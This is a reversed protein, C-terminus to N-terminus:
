SHITVGLAKFEPKIRVAWIVGLLLLGIGLFTLMSPLQARLIYTYCLAALTEFVILQGVMATPLRQSAANWCMTAVLSAFVAITVVVGIFVLPRPGFPMAFERGTAASWIWFSAYGLAALPLTALGQATAWSRPNRDAHSRMWQANRIPYWTWCCVAAVGLVIGTGYRYVNSSQVATISSLEVHNVCAIGALVIGIPIILKAWPLYGDREHNVINSFITITVPLAGILMTPVPGGAMQISSALCLYYIVNGIASLELALLWDKRTLKRLEVRDLWGLPLAILGFALYRGFSQMAAPYEPLLLPGIFVIGWIMGAALAFLMGVLM